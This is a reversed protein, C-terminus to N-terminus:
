APEIMKERRLREVLERCDRRIVDESADFEAGLRSVIDEVLKGEGLLEWIRLGTGSLSYYAATEVDLIVAEDAVKRWAVRSSHKFAQPKRTETKPM